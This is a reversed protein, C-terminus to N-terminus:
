RYTNTEYLNLGDTLTGAHILSIMLLFYGPADGVHPSTGISYRSKHNLSNMSLLKVIQMEMVYLTSERLMCM